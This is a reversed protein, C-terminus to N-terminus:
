KKTCKKFVLIYKIVVAENSQTCKLFLVTCVSVKKQNAWLNEPQHESTCTDLVVNGIRNFGSLDEPHYLADSRCFIFFNAKHHVKIGCLVM